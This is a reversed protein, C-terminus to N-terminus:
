IINRIEKLNKVEITPVIKDKLKGNSNLWISSIGVNNACKIDTYLNDGIIVYKEKDDNGIIRSLAKENPKPLTNDWGYVEDFFDYIGLIKLNKIQDKRFWDSLALIIYGKEKLYMLIDISHEILGIPNRAYMAELFSDSSINEKNLITLKEELMNCFVKESMKIDKCRECLNSWFDQMENKFLEGELINFYERYYNTEQNIDHKFLTNDLDFIVIKVKEFSKM